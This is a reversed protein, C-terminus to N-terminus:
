IQIDDDLFCIYSTDGAEDLGRNRALILSKVKQQAHIKRVGPFDMSEFLKKTDENDSQDVIVIEAPQLTQQRVSDLCKKVLQPRNLTPIIVTVSNSSAM